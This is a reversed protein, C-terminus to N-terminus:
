IATGRGACRPRRCSRSAARTLAARGSGGVIQVVYEGPVLGGTVPPSPTGPAPLYRGAQSLRAALAADTANLLSASLRSYFLWGGLGFAVALAAVFVLAVRLRIPM